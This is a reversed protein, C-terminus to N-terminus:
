GLRIHRGHRGSRLPSDPQSRDERQPSAREHLCGNLLRDRTALKKGVLLQNSSCDSLTQTFIVPIRRSAVSRLPTHPRQRKQHQHVKDHTECKAACALFTGMNGLSRLQALVAAGRSSHSTCALDELHDFTWWWFFGTDQWGTGFATAAGLADRWFITTGHFSHKKRNGRKSSVFSTVLSWPLM